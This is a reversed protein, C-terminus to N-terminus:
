AISANTGVEVADVSDTASVFIERGEATEYAARGIQKTRYRDTFMGLIYNHFCFLFISHQNLAPNMLPAIKDHLERLKSWHAGPHEHHATHLGNNFLWYNTFKSVFNRSHDHESWPDCHIHQVYNIFMMSWLAFASPLAMACGYVLLGKGFGHMVIAITIMSLHGLAVATYQTVVQRFLTPSQKSKRIYEKIPDSQWYASVFFYTSAVLWTHKKSYRWTITADGAKNVYKHHNLNHTPIWAFLPYGYFVSLWASFFANAKRNLFVPCHNHNHSFVGSCFGFYLGLPIMWPILEPKVYQIAVSAPFFVLAWLMLRYDAAYRPKM